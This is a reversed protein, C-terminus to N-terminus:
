PLRKPIRAKRASVPQSLLKDRMTQGEPLALHAACAHEYATLMVNNTGTRENVRNARQNRIGDSSCGNLMSSFM